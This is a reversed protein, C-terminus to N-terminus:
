PRTVVTTFGTAWTSSYYAYVGPALTHVQFALGTTANYLMVDSIGDANFDSVRMTFGPAWRGGGYYDFAGAPNLAVVFHLGDTPRYLFLERAAGAVFNGTDVVFGAGWQGFAYTPGAANFGVRVWYGNGPQYLFLESAGDGDFDIPHVDWNPGWRTPGMDYAFDGTATIFVRFWLGAYPHAANRNYIFLDSRGDGNLDAPYISFGPAWSGYSYAFDGPGVNLARVWTGNAANHLFVDSLGDGNFDVIYPTWNSGWSYGYFSFNGSGINAAKIFQGTAARYLFLDGLADGNLNAALVTWGTAWQSAITGAFGFGGSLQQRVAGSAADYLLVDGLGSGSLSMVGRAAVSAPSFMAVFRAECVTWRTVTVVGDFCDADGAWGGFVTGDGARPILTVVGGDVPIDCEVSSCTGGTSTSVLGGPTKLTLLPRVFVQRVSEVISGNADGAPPYGRARLYISQNLPVAAGNLVWSSGGDHVPVGLPGYVVGDASWEFVARTVEAAEGLRMWSVVTGANSVHLQVDPVLAPALRAIRRRAQSGTGGGGIATFDGAVQMVGDLQLAVATVDGNAGPDFTSDRLGDAGFRALGNRAITMTVTADPLVYHLSSFRGGATIRRNTDLALTLVEAFYPCPNSPGDGPACLRPANFNADLSGNANVRALSFQSLGPATPRAEFNGGFLIRGDPQIAIANIRMHARGAIGYLTTKAGGALAARAPAVAFGPDWSGDGNLRNLHVANVDLSHVLHGGIVIKGDIQIAVATVAGSNYPFALPWVDPFAADISGDAELRGIRWRDNLGNGGGGLTTFAGGVVIKGDPQLAIAFVTDSAGADFGMDISGDANLRAIRARPTSGTGGGGITTFTGGVLIKGDPQVVIAHIEGNAGPDFGSDLSRDANLRAIGHRTLGGITTFQGGLLTKGDPQIALITVQADAGIDTELSGDTLLRGIRNRTTTGIVGGLGTFFGGVLTRGDPQSAVARVSNNAGPNFSGDISGDANLRALRNRANVGTGGGGAMTFDGGLVIRDLADVDLSWVIANAGPNFGPDVSGDTNLRGVSRRTATGIGGGLATFFGGAVIRGDSQLGLSTVSGTAGPNFAADLIGNAEFRALRARPTTGFGGGGAASFEGGALIRQDTQVVVTWVLNNVGPNFAADLTGDANFRGIRSRATVVTDGTGRLTTFSGGVVIKGDAQVAMSLISGTAGADFTMDVAGNPLLRAIRNRPVAGGAIVSTFNGAILIRGDGLVVIDWVTGNVGGAFSQDVTGDPNLRALYNCATSGIQTFDGGVLIKGDPQLAFAQVLGNANPNFGDLVSQARVTARMPFLFVVAALLVRATRLSAM